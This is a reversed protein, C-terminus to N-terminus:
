AYNRTNFDEVQLASVQQALKLRIWAAAGRFAEAETPYVETTYLLENLDSRYYIQAAWGEGPSQLSISIRVPGSM